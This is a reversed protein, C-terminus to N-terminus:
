QEQHQIAPQHAILFQIRNTLPPALIHHARRATLHLLKLGLQKLVVPPFRTSTHLDLLDRYPLSFIRVDEAAGRSALLFLLRNAFPNGSAHLLSQLAQLFGDGRASQLITVLHLPPQSFNLGSVGLDVIQEFDSQPVRGLAYTQEPLHFFFSFRPPLQPFAGVHQTGIELR